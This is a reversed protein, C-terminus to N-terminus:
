QLKLHSNDCFPPKGTLKCTCLKVRKTENLTFLLPKYKTGHHSGDCFPQTKSFGCKCFLYSGAELELIAPETGTNKQRTYGKSIESGEKNSKVLPYLFNSAFNDKPDNPLGLESPYQRTFKATGFLQDWISFMNGFNANPDSIQDAQSKGHHAYHFAPTVFIHEVIFAVPSLAKYRYLLRDWKTPSHSGVILLQKLVLGVAVAAGGGWFTVLALWWINPMLIYYLWANRYSVLLGMEEATHHPRHLRWLFSYEHALRHYWYQLVDDISLFLLLVLWFNTKSLLLSYTPSIINGIFSVALVIGPKVMVLLVIAAVNELLYDDLNRKRFDVLGGLTEMLGFVILITLVAISSHNAIFQLM